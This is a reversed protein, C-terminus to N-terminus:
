DEDLNNNLYLVKAYLECFQVEDQSERIVLIDAQIKSSDALLRTRARQRLSGQLVIM